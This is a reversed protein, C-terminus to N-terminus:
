RHEKYGNRRMSSALKGGISNPRGRGHPEDSKVEYAGSNNDKVDSLGNELNKNVIPNVGNELKM